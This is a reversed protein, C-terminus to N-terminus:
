GGDLDEGAQAAAAEEFVKGAGMAAALQLEVAGDRMEGIGALEVSGEGGIAAPVPHDVGLPGEPPRLLHEPVEGAVGVSDGIESLRM